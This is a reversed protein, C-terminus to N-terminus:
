VQHPLLGPARFLFSTALSDFFQTSLQLFFLHIICNRQRVNRGRHGRALCKVGKMEEAAAASKLHLLHVPLNKTVLQLFSISKQQKFADEQLKKIHGYWFFDRDM